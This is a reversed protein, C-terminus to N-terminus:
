ASIADPDVACGHIALVEDLTTEGNAIRHRIVRRDRASTGSWVGWDESQLAWELCPCRVKCGDCLDKADDPVFVDAARPPIDINDSEITPYFLATAVEPALGRCAADVYWRTDNM